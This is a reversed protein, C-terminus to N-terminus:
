PMVVFDTRVFTRKTGSAPTPPPFDGAGASSTQATVGGVVQTGNVLEFAAKWGPITSLDPMVFGPMTGVVGPSVFSAWVTTCTSNSGCQQASLQQNANWVYGISSAYAPWTAQLTIYPQKTAVSANLMGLPAPAVYTQDDPMNTANTVTLSSGPRTVQISQDYVDTTRMQGVALANSELNTSERTFGATTGNGTYLTTTALVRAQLDPVGATVQFYQAQDADSFDITRATPGTVMVDRIALTEDTYFEGNGEPVVHTIILDHTGM